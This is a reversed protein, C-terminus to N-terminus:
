FLFGRQLGAAPAAPGDYKFCGHTASSDKLGGAIRSLAHSSMGRAPALSKTMGHHGALGPGPGIFVPWEWPAAPRHEQSGPAGQLADRFSLPAGVRGVCRAHPEAGAE